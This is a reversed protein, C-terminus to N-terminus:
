KKAELLKELKKEVNRLRHDWPGAESEDVLWKQERLANLFKSNARLEQQTAALSKKLKDHEALLQSHMDALKTLRSELDALRTSTQTNQVDSHALLEKRADQLEGGLKTVSTANSRESFILLLCAAASGLGLVAIALLLHQNKVMNMLAQDM